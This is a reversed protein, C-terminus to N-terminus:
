FGLTCSLTYAILSSTKSTKTM